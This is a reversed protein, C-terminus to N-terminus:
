TRSREVGAASSDDPGGHSDVAGFEGAACLGAGSRRGRTRSVPATHRAFERARRGEPRQGCSAAGSDTVACARLRVDHGRGARARSDASPRQGGGGRAASRHRAVRCHHGAAGGAHGRPGDVAGAISLILSEALLQTIIQRPAAGLATRVAIERERSLARTLLLSAVNLCGIVFLLGVAGFLVYLAPRYYGLQDNLLPVVGFSWGKNSQAFEQRAAGGAHRGGRAGTRIVHRGGAAGRRGHLARQPQAPQPGMQLRQWVDVDDPFHFGAPM